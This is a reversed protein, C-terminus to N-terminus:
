RSTAESPAHGGPSSSSVGARTVAAVLGAALIGLDVATGWGILPPIALVGLLLSAVGTGAEAVVAPLSLLLFTKLGRLRPTRFAYPRRWSRYIGVLLLVTSFAAALFPKWNMLVPPPAESYKAVFTGPHAITVTHEIAGGDSWSNMRLPIGELDQAEPASLTHTSGMAWWFTQPADMEAGDVLMRLGSPATTVTVRLETRFTATYNASGDCVVEHFRAGGDSWSSFVYRVDGALQPSPAAITHTTGNGCTLSRPATAAVGDVSVQLGGPITDVSVLFDESEASFGLVLESDQDGMFTYTSLDSGLANFRSAEIGGYGLIYSVITSAWVGSSHRPVGDLRVGAINNGTGTGNRFTPRFDHITLTVGNSTLTYHEFAVTDITAGQGTLVTVPFTYVDTTTTREWVTVSTGSDVRIPTTGQPRPPGNATASTAILPLLIAALLCAILVGGTRWM